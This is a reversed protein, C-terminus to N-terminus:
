GVAERPAAANVRVRDDDLVGKVADVEWFLSGPEPVVSVVQDGRMVLAIPAGSGNSYSSCTVLVNTTRQTQHDTVYRTTDYVELTINPSKSAVRRVLDDITM